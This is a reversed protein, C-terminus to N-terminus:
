RTLADYDRECKLGAARAADAYSALLGARRDARGLVDALVGIADAAAARDAVAPSDALRASWERAAHAAQARVREADDANRAAAAQAAAFERNQDDQNRQQAQLRRLGEKAKAEHEALADRTNEDVRRQYGGKDAEEVASTHWHHVKWAVAAVALAAVTLVAIRLYLGAPIM